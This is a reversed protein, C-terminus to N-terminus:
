FAEMPIARGAMGHTCDAHYHLVGQTVNLHCCSVRVRGEEAMVEVKVSPVITPASGDLGEITWV